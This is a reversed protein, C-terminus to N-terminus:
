SLRSRIKSEKTEHKVTRIKAFFCSVPKPNMFKGLLCMRLFVAVLTQLAIHITVTVLPENTIQKTIISKDSPQARLTHNEIDTQTKHAPTNTM